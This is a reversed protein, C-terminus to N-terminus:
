FPLNQLQIKKLFPKLKQITYFKRDIWYGISGGNYVQKIENGSKCNFLKGCKTLKYYPKFDVEWILTYTVTITDMITQYFKTYLHTLPM